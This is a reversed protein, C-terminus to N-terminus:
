SDKLIISTMMDPTLVKEKNGVWYKIVGRHLADEFSCPNWWSPAGRRKWSAPSVVYKEVEVVSGFVETKVKTKRAFWAKNKCYYERYAAVVDQQRYEEPMAQAPPLINANNLGYPNPDIYRQINLWSEHDKTRKPNRYNGEDNLACALTYCLQWSRLSSRMWVACPHNQYGTAEPNHCPIGMANSSANFMQLTESVMKNVHLDCHAQANAAAWEVANPFQTRYELFFINMFSFAGSFHNTTM